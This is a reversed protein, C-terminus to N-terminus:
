LLLMGMYADDVFCDLLAVSRIVHIPHDWDDEASGIKRRLNAGDALRPWTHVDVHVYTPVIGDDLVQLLDTDTARILRLLGMPGLTQRLLAIVQVELAKTSVTAM